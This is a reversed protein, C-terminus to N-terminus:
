SKAKGKFDDPEPTIHLSGGKHTSAALSIAPMVGGRDDDRTKGIQIVDRDPAQFTDVGKSSMRVGPWKRGPAFAKGTTNQNSFFDAVLYQTLHHSERGTAKQSSHAYTALRLGIHGHGEANPKVKGPDTEV